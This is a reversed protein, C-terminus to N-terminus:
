AWNIGSLSFSPNHSALQEWASCLNAVTFVFQQFTGLRDPCAKINELSWHSCAILFLSLSLSFYLSSRPLSILSPHLSLNIRSNNSHPHFIEHFPGLSSYLALLPTSVLLSLIIVLVNPNRVSGCMHGM